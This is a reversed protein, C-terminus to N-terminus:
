GREFHAKLADLDAELDRPLPDRVFWSRVRGLLGSPRVDVALHVDTGDRTNLYTLTTERRTTRGDAVMRVRAPHDFETVELESASPRRGNRRVERFRTGAGNRQETLIQVDVIAPVVDAYDEITTTLDFVEERPARITRSVEIKAM